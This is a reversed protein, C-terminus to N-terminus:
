DGGLMDFQNISRAMEDELQASMVSELMKISQEVTDSISSQWNDSLNVNIAQNAGAQAKHDRYPIYEMGPAQDTHIEQEEIILQPESRPEPDEIDVSPEDPFAGMEPEGPLLSDDGHLGTPVDLDPEGQSEAVGEVDAQPEAGVDLWSVDSLPGSDGSTISETRLEEDRHEPHPESATPPETGVPVEAKEPSPDDAEPVDVDVMDHWEQMAAAIMKDVDM